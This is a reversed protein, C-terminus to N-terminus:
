NRCRCSFPVAIDSSNVALFRSREISELRHPAVHVRDDAHQFGVGVADIHHLLDRRHLRRQFAGIPHHQM